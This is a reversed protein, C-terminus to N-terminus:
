SRKFYVARPDPERPRSLGEHDPHRLIWQLAESPLYRRGDSERKWFDDDPGLGGLRAIEGLTCPALPSFINNIVWSRIERNLQPWWVDIETVAWGGIWVAM